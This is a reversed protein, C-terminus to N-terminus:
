KPYEVYKFEIRNVTKTADIRYHKVLMAVFDDPTFDPFGERICDEQTIENLPESRVSVVEICRGTPLLPKIKEGKKLGMAKYVPKILDGPKLLWWGFRRTIDKEEAIVQATTMAFSINRM